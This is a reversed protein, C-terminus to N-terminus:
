AEILPRVTASGILLTEDRGRQNLLRDTFVHGRDLDVALQVEDVAVFSLDLDRPM